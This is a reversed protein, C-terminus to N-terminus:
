DEAGPESFDWGFDAFLGMGDWGNGAKEPRKQPLRARQDEKLISELKKEAAEDIVTRAKKAKSVEDDQNSFEWMRMIMKMRGGAKEEREELAHAWKDNASVADRSYQDKLLGLSEKQAGDLDKLKAAEAMAKEIYAEKYVRPFDRRKVEFEFSSRMAEPLLQAIRRSSQRNLERIQRATDSLPKTIDDWKGQDWMNGQLMKEQAEKGQRENQQLLRDLDMEYQDLSQRIEQNKEADAKTTHAIDILDTAAGIAMGFRMQMERRRHREVGAFKAAQDSTLLGKLDDFFQKEYTEKKTAYDKAIKPMEEQWLSWNQNERAKEGIQRIKAQMDERMTKFASRNGDMLDRAADKQADDLGLIRVYADFGNRTISEDIGMQGGMMGWQARAPSAVGAIVVVAGAAVGTWSGRNWAM